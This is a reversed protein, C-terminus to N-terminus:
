PQAVQPAPVPLAILDPVTEKSAMLVAKEIVKNYDNDAMWKKQQADWYGAEKGDLTRYMLSVRGIRVFDADRGDDLKGKYTVMSRGYELEIQYAEMLRRYREGNSVEEDSMLERLRDMRESRSDPGAQTPDKFPLDATIFQELSEFMRQILGVAEVATADIEALQKEVRAMQEQQADLQKGLYTNNRALSDAEALISAYGDAASEQACVSTSSVLLLVMLGLGPLLRIQAKVPALRWM